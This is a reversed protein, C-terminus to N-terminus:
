APLRSSNAVTYSHIRVIIVVIVIHACIHFSAVLLPAVNLLGNTPERRSSSSSRHTRATWTWTHTTIELPRWFLPTKKKKKSTHNYWIVMLRSPLLLLLVGTREVFRHSSCFVFHLIIFFFFSSAPLFIVRFQAPSSSAAREATAISRHVSYRNAGSHKYEADTAVSHCWNRILANGCWTTSSSSNSSSVCSSYIAGCRRRRRCLPVKKKKKRKHTIATLVSSMMKKFWPGVSDASSSSPLPPPPPFQKDKSDSVLCLLYVFAWQSGTELHGNHDSWQNVCEGQEQKRM